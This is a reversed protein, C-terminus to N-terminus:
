LECVDPTRDGITKGQVNPYYKEMFEQYYKASAANYRCLYEPRGDIDGCENYVMALCIHCLPLNPCGGCAPTYRIQENERVLREWAQPLDANTLPVSASDYMGCNSLEGQWNVWFSCVGARCVMRMTQRQPFSTDLEELPVFRSYRLAQGVFWDPEYQLLDKKVRALAAEEPTLRHNTGIKTGDRRTPPFMYTAVQIPVQLERGYSIMAELEHVNEPTISANLRFPINRERLLSIAQRVRRFAEGNGCLAQYSEESAGYLTINIRYPRHKDLWDAWDRDILTGNSNISVQMGLQNMGDLIMRFDPHLLPEGGTLLPYVLGLDGAQRVIDLWWQGDKLGGSANVEEMSKRVYCMKCQLNCVPLLELAGM